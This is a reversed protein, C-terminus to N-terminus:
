SQGGGVFNTFEGVLDGMNQVPATNVERKNADTGRAGKLRAAAGRRAQADAKAAAKPQPGNLMVYAERFGIHRFAKGANAADQYRRNERNMYKITKDFMKAGESENFEKTGPKGKFKPFNGEQRLETLDDAIASNEKRTYDNLDAQMKNQRFQTQLERARTEQATVAQFFVGEEWKSAYGLIDKPLDGYGYVQVEKVEQSDPGKGPVVIRVTIKQLNQLIYTNEDTVAPAAVAPKSETRTASNDDEEADDDDTSTVYDDNDEEETSDDTSDDSDTTDDTEETSDDDNADEDTSADADTADADTATADDAAGDGNLIEEPVDTLLDTLNPM